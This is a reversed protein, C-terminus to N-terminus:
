AVAGDDENGADDETVPARVPRDTLALRVAEELPVGSGEGHLRRFAPEGLAAHLGGVVGEHDPRAGPPRVAGLTRLAADAAGVLVAAREPRGLALEPGALDSVFSAALMRRGASWALTLARQELRRGEAVAGSGVALHGLHALFTALQPEDGVRAALARGEEYVARALVEDGHVRALEGEVHLAQAILPAEGVARALDIAQESLRLAEPYAAAAGLFTMATWALAAALYREHRGRRSLAAAARWHGRATGLDGTWTVLGAALHLRALLLDDVASPHALASATWRRGEPHHGERHWFNGLAATIRAATAWDEAAEAAAHAARIEPLLEGLRDIWPGDATWSREDADELVTTIWVTHRRRIREAEERPLHARARERLLALLRFRVGGGRGPVRRVLSQDVLRDLADVVDGDAEGCVAEVAELPVAGTFV